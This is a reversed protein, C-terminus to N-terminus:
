RKISKIINLTKTNRGFIAEHIYPHSPVNVAIFAISFILEFIRAFSFFYLVACLRISRGKEAGFRFFASCFIPAIGSLMKKYILPTSTM